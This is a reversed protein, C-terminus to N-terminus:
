RAPAAVEEILGYKDLEALAQNPFENGADYIVASPLPLLGIADKTDLMKKQEAAFRAFKEPDEAKTVKATEDLDPWIEKFLGKHAEEYSLLSTRLANLNKVVARRSSGLQYPVRVVKAGNDVDPAVQEYGDLQNFASFLSNQQNIDLDLKLTTEGAARCRHGGIAV